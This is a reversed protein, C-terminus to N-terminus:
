TGRWRKLLFGFGMVIEPHDGILELPIGLGDGVHFQRTIDALIGRQDLAGPCIEGSDHM